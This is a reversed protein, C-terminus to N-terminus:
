IKLQHTPSTNNQISFAKYHILLIPEMHPKQNLHSLSYKQVIANFSIIQDKKGILKRYRGECDEIKISFLKNKNDFLM